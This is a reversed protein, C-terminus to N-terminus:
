RHEALASFVKGMGSGRRMRCYRSGSQFSALLKRTAGLDSRAGARSSQMGDTQESDAAVRFYFTAKRDASWVLNATCRM